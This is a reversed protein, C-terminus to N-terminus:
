VSDTKPDLLAVNFESNEKEFIYWCLLGFYSLIVNPAPLLTDINM